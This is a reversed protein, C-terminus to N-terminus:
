QKGSTLFNKLTEEWRKADHLADEGPEFAALRQPKQSPWFCYLWVICAIDYAIVALRNLLANRNATHAWIGILALSTSVDLGFGFAVGFEQRDWRRGMVLMLLVFFFLVAARLFEYIRSTAPLISLHGGLLAVTGVVSAILSAAAPFLYRYIRTRYFGPFLRKFFLEYVALFAFVALVIDSIWYVNFYLNVPAHRFALRILGISEAGLVYVFFFPFTKHWKRYVLLLSLLLLAPLGMWDVFFQLQSQLYM